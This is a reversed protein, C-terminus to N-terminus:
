DENRVLTGAPFNPSVGAGPVAQTQTCVGWWLMNGGTAADFIAFWGITAGANWAGTSPGFTFAISNSSSSPTGSPASWSANAQPIQIRGYGATAAVETGGAADSPAATFAALYVASPSYAVAVINGSTPAVAVAPTIVVHTADSSTVRHFTGDPMIVIDDPGIPTGTNTCVINSTSANSGSIAAADGRLERNIVKKEYFATKGAM